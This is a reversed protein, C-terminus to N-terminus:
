HPARNLPVRRFGGSQATKDWWSLLGGIEMGFLDNRGVTQSIREDGNRIGNDRRKRRESDEAEDSNRKM